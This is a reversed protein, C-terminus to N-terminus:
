KALRLITDETLEDKIEELLDDAKDWLRGTERESKRWDDYRQLRLETNLPTAHYKENLAEDRKERKKLEKRLAVLQKCKNKLSM